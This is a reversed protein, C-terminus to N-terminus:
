AGCARRATPASRGRSTSSASRTASRATPRRSAASGARSSRARGAPVRPLLPLGRGRVGPGPVALRARWTGACTPRGTRSRRGAVLANTGEFYPRSTLNLRTFAPAGTAALYADWDYAPTLRKLEDLSMPNDRNKPDRMAVRDLHAKALETELRLVTAAGAAAAAESDGLLVLTRAVHELYKERKEKSKADDKLYDDRDPLGIGGQGLSAITQTSDHLDPAAGFRFLTPLASAEHEGLLQFLDRKSAVADIARRAGARDAEHRAGRHRGRGHLLRLLRGVKAEIPAARGRVRGEASELIQHLEERNREALENFRGWRTQDPPIPNKARWGGCAFQYFDM